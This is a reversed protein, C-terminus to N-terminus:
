PNAVTVPLAGSTARGSSDLVTVTFTHSGNRLRSTDLWADYSSGNWYMPTSNNAQDITVRPETGAATPITVTITVTGRINAGASPTLFTISQASASNTVARDVTGGFDTAWYANRSRGIGIALMAPNLMNQRHAYTCTGSPTPDCADRWAAFASQATDAGGLLNEAWTSDTYGFAALRAPTGRGLSDTHTQVRNVAMDSSMWQAATQLTESVTLLPIRNQSRYANILTLFNWQESDLTM